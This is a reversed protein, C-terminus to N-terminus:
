SPIKEKDFHGAARSREATPRVAPTLGFNM